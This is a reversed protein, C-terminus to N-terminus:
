PMRAVHLETVRRAYSELNGFSTWSESAHRLPSDLSYDTKGRAVRRNIHAPGNGYVALRLVNRILRSEDMDKQVLRNMMWYCRKSEWKRRCDQRAQPPMSATRSKLLSPLVKEWDRSADRNREYNASDRQVVAPLRTDRTPM